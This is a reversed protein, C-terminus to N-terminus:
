RPTLQRGAFGSRAEHRLCCPPMLPRLCHCAAFFVFVAFTLFSFLPPEYHFILPPTAFIRRFIEFSAYDAFIDIAYKDALTAAATDAAFDATPPASICSAASDALIM